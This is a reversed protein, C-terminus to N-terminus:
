HLGVPGRVPYFGWPFSLDYRNNLLVFGLSWSVNGNNNISCCKECAIIIMTMITCKEKRTITSCVNRKTTMMM